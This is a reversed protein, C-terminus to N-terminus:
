RGSRYFPADDPDERRAWQRVQPDSAIQALGARAGGGDVADVVRAALRGRSALANSTTRRAEAAEAQAEAVRAAYGELQARLM